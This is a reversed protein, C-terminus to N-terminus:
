NDVTSPPGLYHQDWVILLLFVFGFGTDAVTVVDLYAQAAVASAHEQM